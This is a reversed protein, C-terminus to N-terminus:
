MSHCSCMQLINALLSTRSSRLASQNLSFCDSFFLFLFLYLSQVCMPLEKDKDDNESECPILINHKWLAVFECVIWVNEVLVIISLNLGKPLEGELYWPNAATEGVM